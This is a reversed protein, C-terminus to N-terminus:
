RMPLEHPRLPADVLVYAQLPNSQKSIALSM